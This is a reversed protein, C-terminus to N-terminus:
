PQSNHLMEELVQRFFTLKHPKTLAERAHTIRLTNAQTINPFYWQTNQHYQQAEIIEVLKDQALLIQQRDQPNITENQAIAQFFSDYTFPEYLILTITHLQIRGHHNRTYRFSACRTADNFLIIREADKVPIHELIYM